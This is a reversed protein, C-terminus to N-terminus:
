NFLSSISSDGHITGNNSQQVWSIVATLKINSARYWHRTWFRTFCWLYVKLSNNQSVIEEPQAASTCYLPKYYFWSSAGIEWNIKPIFEVHKPCNRQWDDPTKWQVCLLARLSVAFRYSMYCQQTYLSFSRIIPVPVTRFM